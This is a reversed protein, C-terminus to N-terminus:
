IGAKQCLEEVSCVIEARIAEVARQGLQASSTQRLDDKWVWCKREEPWRVHEEAYRAISEEGPTHKDLRVLEPFLALALSTEWKGAHDAPRQGDVTVNEYEPRALVWIGPNAVMFEAAAEKVTNVQSSGYHGTTLAIVKAGLKACQGLMRKLLDKVFPPEYILTGCFSGYGPAGVWNLPLVVGGTREACGLIIHYMKLGDLGLPLHQGHWEILGCPLYVLPREELAVQLEAPTMEEIKVKRM